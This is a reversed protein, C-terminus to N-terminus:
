RNSHLLRNNAKFHNCPKCSSSFNDNKGGKTNRANRFIFTSSYSGLEFIAWLGSVKTDEIKARKSFLLTCWKANGIWFRFQIILEFYTLRECLCRSPQCTWDAHQPWVFRWKVSAIMRSLYTARTIHANTIRAADVLLQHPCMRKILIDPTTLSCCEDNTHVTETETSYLVSNHHAFTCETCVGLGSCVCACM